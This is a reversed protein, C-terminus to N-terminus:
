PWNCMRNVDTHVEGSTILSKDTRLDDWVRLDSPLGQVLDLRSVLVDHTQLGAYPLEVGHEHVHGHQHLCLYMTPVRTWSDNRDRRSQKMAKIERNVIMIIHRSLFPSITLLMSFFTELAASYMHLALSSVLFATLYWFFDRLTLRKLLDFTVYQGKATITLVAHKIKQYLGFTLDQYVYHLVQRHRQGLHRFTCVRVLWIKPMSM